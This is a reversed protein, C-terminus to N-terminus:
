NRSFRCAANYPTLRPFLHAYASRRNALLEKDLCLINGFGLINGAKPVNALVERAMEVLQGELRTTGCVTLDLKGALLSFADECFPKLDSVAVAAAIGSSYDAWISCIWLRSKYVIFKDQAPISDHSSLLLKAGMCNEAVKPFIAANAETMPGVKYAAGLVELGPVSRQLIAGINLHLM